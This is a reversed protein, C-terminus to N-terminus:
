TKLFLTGRVIFVRALRMRGLGGRARGSEVVPRELVMPSEEPAHIVPYAALDGSLRELTPLSRYLLHFVHSRAGAEFEVEGTAADFHDSGHRL